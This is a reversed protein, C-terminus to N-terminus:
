SLLTASSRRATLGTGRPLSNRERPGAACITRLARNAHTTVRARLTARADARLAGGCSIGLRRQIRWRRRGCRGAVAGDHVADRRLKTRHRGLGFGLRFTRARLARRTRDFAGERVDVVVEALPQREFIQRPDGAQAHPTERRHETPLDALRRVAVDAGCAHAACLVQEVGPHRGRADGAFGAEVVLAVQRWKLVTHPM